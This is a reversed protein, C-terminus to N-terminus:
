SALSQVIPLARDIAIAFGINEAASASAGATNIGVLRGAADILPGGSNGPNIAADTQLVGELHESGGNAGSVDITRDLGSVIGATATEGLGLPYGLAVVEQGLALDGSSGIPMAPRDGTPASVVAIDHTPDTGLVTASTTTGDSFRVRVDTAGDVVHANTVIVDSGIIVGSGLGQAQIPQGFPGIQTATVQVAVVSRMATAIVSTLDTADGTTAVSAIPAAQTDAARDAVVKALVGGEIASATLAAALLVPVWPRRRGHRTAGTTRGM